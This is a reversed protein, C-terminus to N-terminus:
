QNILKEYYTQLNKVIINIDFKEKFIEYSKEGMNKRLESNEALFDIKEALVQNHGPTLMYGNVGNEIMDPIGGVTTSIVPMGYSMAELITMPLGEDYSPLIMFDANRYAKEVADGKIWGDVEIISELNYKKVLERIENVEGNGHMIIKINKNKISKAAEIIDYAGKRKGMIGMFLVNVNESVPKPNLEKLKVPNYLVKINSNTCKDQIIKKWQTSLVLILDASNLINKIFLNFPFIKDKYFINPDCSHFNIITKKGFIKAITLLISKRLFSGKEASLIHVIKINKNSLLIFIYDFIFFFFRVWNKLTSTQIYSPKFIVDEGLKSELFSNIVSAIGGFSYSGVLLIEKNKM